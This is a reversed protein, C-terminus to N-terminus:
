AVFLVRHCASNEQVVQVLLNFLKLPLVITQFWVLAAEVLLYLLLLFSQGLFSKELLLLLLLHSDRLIVKVRSRGDM